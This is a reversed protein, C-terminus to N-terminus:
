NRLYHVVNGIYMLPKGLAMSCLAIGRKNPSLVLIYNCAWTINVKLIM